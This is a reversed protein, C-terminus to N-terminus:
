TGWHNFRWTGFTLLSAEAWSLQSIHAQTFPMLMGPRYSGSHYFLIMQAFSFAGLVTQKTFTPQKNQPFSLQQTWLQSIWGICRHGKVMLCSTQQEDLGKVVGTVWRSSSHVVFCCPHTWCVALRTASPRKRGEEYATDQIKCSLLWWM